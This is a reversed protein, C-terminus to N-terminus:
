GQLPATCGNRRGATYRAARLKTARPRATARSQLTRSQIRAATRRHTRADAGGQLTCCAARWFFRFLRIITRKNKAVQISLNAGPGGPGPLECTSVLITGFVQWQLERGRM